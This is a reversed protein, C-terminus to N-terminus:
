RINKNIQDLYPALLSFVMNKIQDPRLYFYLRMDAIAKQRVRQIYEHYQTILFDKQLAKFYSLAQNINSLNGVGKKALEEIIIERAAKEVQALVDAHTRLSTQSITPIETVTTVVPENEKESSIDASGQDASGPDASGPDASSQDASITLSTIILSSVLIVHFITIKKM